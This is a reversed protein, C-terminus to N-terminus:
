SQKEEPSGAFSKPINEFIRNLTSKTTALDEASIGNSFSKWVDLVIPMLRTRLDRGRETLYVTYKRRDRPDPTRTLYGSRELDDVFRTINAKNKATKDAIEQQTRGDREWLSLLISWQETTIDYGEQKFRRQLAAKMQLATRYMIFGLSNELPFFVSFSPDNLPVGQFITIM